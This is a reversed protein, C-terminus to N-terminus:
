GFLRAIKSLDAMVAFGAAFLGTIWVIVKWGFKARIHDERLSTIEGGLQDMSETISGRWTEGAEIHKDITRSLKSINEANKEVLVELKAMRESEM